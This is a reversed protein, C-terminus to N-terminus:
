EKEMVVKGDDAREKEVFDAALFAARARESRETLHVTIREFGLDKMKKAAQEIVEVDKGAVCRLQTIVGEPTALVFGIRQGGETIELAAGRTGHESRADIFKSQVDALWQGQEAPMKEMAGHVSLLNPGLDEIANRVDLQSQLENVSAGPAERQPMMEGHAKGGDM